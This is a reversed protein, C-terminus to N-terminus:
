SWSQYSDQYWEHDDGSVGGLAGARNGFSIDGGGGGSGGNVSALGYANGLPQQALPQNGWNSQFRRKSEGQNQHGGDFKRKGATFSIVMTIFCINIHLFIKKFMLILDFSMRKIM